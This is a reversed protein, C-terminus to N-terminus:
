TVDEIKLFREPRIIRREWWERAEPTDPPPASLLYAEGPPCHPSVIVKIGNLGPGLKPPLRAFDYDPPVVLAKPLDDAENLIKAWGMIMEPTITM